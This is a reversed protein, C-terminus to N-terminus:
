PATAQEDETAQAAEYRGERMRTLEADLRGADAKAWDHHALEAYRRAEDSRGSRECLVQLGLAARTSGPDHALAEEFAEEAADPRNGFLAAEGWAEMFYSGNGWAHHGYDDKSRTAAKELLKM